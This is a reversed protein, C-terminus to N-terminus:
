PNIFKVAIGKAAISTSWFGIGFDLKLNIIADAGLKAAEKKLFKVPRESSLGSDASVALPGIIEYNKNIKSTSYVEIKEPRTPPYKTTIDDTRLSSVTYCSALCM